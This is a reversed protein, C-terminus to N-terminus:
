HQIPFKSILPSTRGPTAKDPSVSLEFDIGPRRGAHCEPPITTFRV